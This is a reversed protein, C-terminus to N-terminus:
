SISHYEKKTFLRLAKEIFDTCWIHFPTCLAWGLFFLTIVGSGIVIDTLWHAGAILRPLSRFIAYVVAYSGLRRGAFFVYSGAFLVLTTAHDGPFSATADDKIRLWPIEDSLRVCPSVVLSPSPRPIELHERFIVRNVWFIILAAFIVCFIFQASRRIREGKPAQLIAAAFFGIFVADEVWDIMKHNAFAWFLQWTPRNELTGNLFKFSHLDLWDWFPRTPPWLFTGLLILILLHSFLLPKFKM